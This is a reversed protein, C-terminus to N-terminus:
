WESILNFLLEAFRDRRRELSKEQMAIEFIGLIAAAMQRYTKKVPMDEENPITVELGSKSEVAVAHRQEATVGPKATRLHIPTDGVSSTLVQRVVSKRSQEKEAAKKDMRKEMKRYVQPFIRKKLTEHIDAQVARFEPHFRNFSDRDVNLADELGEDMFIEGTIWRSRPGQNVRFDLLTQDYYGIGVNKIRIMIGRLEDPMIQKGERAAIYGHFSVPKGYVKKSFTLRHSTFGVRDHRLYVPKRLELGDVIVKFKQSELQEQDAKIMGGPIATADVYRVPASAALEWILRWYDGLLQLSETKSFIKVASKWDSPIGKFGEQEVSEKFAQTFQPHLDSTHITTGGPGKKPDFEDDFEYQGINVEEGTVIDADDTDLKPKLLDYLRVNARFGDGKATRSTITFGLAVQAIGLMGIGLRGILARGFKLPQDEHQKRKESNGIGGSMVRQFEDKTFGEGNDEISLQFFNPYNTNIQVVTANADWANSVLERLASAPSRYLGRTLHALAKEHVKIKYPM